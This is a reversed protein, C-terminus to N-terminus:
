SNKEIAAIAISYAKMAARFADMAAFYAANHSSGLGDNSGDETSTKQEEKPMEEDEKDYDYESWYEVSDVCDLLKTKGDYTLAYRKPKNEYFVPRVLGDQALHYIANSIQKTTLGRQDHYNYLLRKKIEEISYVGDDIAVLVSDKISLQDIRM